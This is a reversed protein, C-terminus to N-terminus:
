FPIDAIEKINRLKEKTKWGRPKEGIVQLVLIKGCECTYVPVVGNKRSEEIDLEINGGCHCTVNPMINTISKFNNLIKKVNLIALAVM